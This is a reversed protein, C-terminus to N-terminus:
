CLFYSVSKRVQIADPHKEQVPVAPGVIPIPVVPVPAPRGATGKDNLNSQSQKYGEFNHHILGIADKLPM